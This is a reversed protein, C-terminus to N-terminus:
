AAERKRMWRTSSISPTSKGLGPFNPDEDGSIEGIQYTQEM